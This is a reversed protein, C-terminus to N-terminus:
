YKTGLPSKPTQRETQMGTEDVLTAISKYNPVTTFIREKNVYVFVIRRKIKLPNKQSRVFM